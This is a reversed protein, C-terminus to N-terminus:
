KQSIEFQGEKTKFINLTFKLVKNVFNDFNLLYMLFSMKMLIKIPCLFMHKINNDYILKDHM